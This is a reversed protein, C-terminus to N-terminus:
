VFSPVFPGQCVCVAKTQFEIFQQIKGRGHIPVTHQVPLFATAYNCAIYCFYKYITFQIPKRIVTNAPEITSIFVVAPRNNGHMQRGQAEAEAEHRAEAEEVIGQKLIRVGRRQYIHLFICDSFYKGARKRWPATDYIGGM